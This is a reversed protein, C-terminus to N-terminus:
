HITTIDHFKEHYRKCLVILDSLKEKGKRIYTRHHVNLRKDSYCLQCRNEAEQLKIKRLEQWHNSSLYQDYESPKIDSISTRFYKITKRSEIIELHDRRSYYKEAIPKKNNNKHEIQYRILPKYLTYITHYPHNKSRITINNQKCFLQLMSEETMEKININEKNLRDKIFQKAGVVRTAVKFKNM